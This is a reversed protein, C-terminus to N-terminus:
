HTVLVSGDPQVRGSLTAKSALNMVRATEGLGARVLSRGEVQITLGSKQYILTVIQNRDILAPPGIDEPLVPRGAYLVVRTEMGILDAADEFVGAMEGSKIALDAPTLISQPRITRSAVVVDALAAIPLFCLAICIRMM